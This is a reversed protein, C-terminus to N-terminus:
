RRADVAARLLLARAAGDLGRAATAFAEGFPDSEAAARLATWAPMVTPPVAATPLDSLVVQADWDLLLARHLPQMRWLEYVARLSPRPGRGVAWPLTVAMEILALGAAGRSPLSRVLRPYPVGGPTLLEDLRLGPWARALAAHWGPAVTGIGLDRRWRAVLDASSSAGLVGLIEGDLMSAVRDREAAEREWLDDPAGKPLAVDEFLLDDELGALDVAAGAHTVTAVGPGAVLEEAPQLPCAGLQLDVVMTGGVRRARLPFLRCVLPKDDRVGAVEIGCRGDDALAWCGDASTVAFAGRARLQVLAALGPARDLLPTLSPGPMAFGLGHCCRSGCRVCDYGLAGDVFAFYFPV